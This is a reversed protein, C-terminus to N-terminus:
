YHASAQRMSMALWWKLKIQCSRYIAESLASEEQAMLQDIHAKWGTLFEVDRILGYKIVEAMGASFEV